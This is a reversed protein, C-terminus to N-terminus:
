FQTYIHVSMWCEERWWRRWKMRKSLVALWPRGRVVQNHWHFNNAIDFALSIMMIMVIITAAAISNINVLSECRSIAFVGFLPPLHQSIHAFISNCTRVFYVGKTPITVNSLTPFVIIICQTLRQYLNGQNAAALMCVSDLILHFSLLDIGIAAYFVSFFHFEKKAAAKQRGLSFVVLTLLYMLFKIGNVVSSNM